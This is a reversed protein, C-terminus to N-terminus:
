AEITRALRDLVAKLTVIVPVKKRDLAEHMVRHRKINHPGRKGPRPGTGWYVAQAYPTRASGLVVRGATQTSLPRMTKALRGTRVPLRPRADAVVIKGVDNFGKRLERPM